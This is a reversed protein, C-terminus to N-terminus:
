DAADRPTRALYTACCFVWIPILGPPWALSDGGVSFAKTPKHQILLGYYGELDSALRAARTTWLNTETSFVQVDDYRMRGGDDDDFRREPIVVLCHGDGCSLVGAHKFYPNNSPYPRPRPRPRPLLNIWPTGPGARYFFVATHTTWRGHRAPFVVRILLFAADAGIVLPPPVSDDDADLEPSTVFCRTLAPPDVVDFSL